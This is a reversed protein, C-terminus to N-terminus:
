GGGPAFIQQREGPERDEFNKSEEVIVARGFRNRVLDQSAILYM